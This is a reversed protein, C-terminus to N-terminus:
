YYYYPIQPCVERCWKMEFSNETVKIYYKEPEVCNTVEHKLGDESSNTFAPVKNKCERGDLGIYTYPEPCSDKCVKLHGVVLYYPTNESCTGCEYVQPTADKHDIIFQDCSESCYVRQYDGDNKYSISMPPNCM